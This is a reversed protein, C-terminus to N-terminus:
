LDSSVNNKAYSECSIYSSVGRSPLIRIMDTAINNTGNAHQDPYFYDFDWYNQYPVRVFTDGTSATYNDESSISTADSHNGRFGRLASTGCRDLLIDKDSLNTKSGEVQFLYLKECSEDLESTHQVLQSQACNYISTSSTLSPRVGQADFSSIDPSLPLQDHLQAYSDIGTDFASPETQSSPVITDGRGINNCIFNNQISGANLMPDPQPIHRSPLLAELTQVPDEQDHRPDTVTPETSSLSGTKLYENLRKDDFGLSNLLLKLKKNHEYVRRAAQQVAYTTDRGKSEFDRLKMELEQIYEKRRARSRRQNERTRALQAKDMSGM